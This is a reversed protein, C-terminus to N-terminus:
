LEQKEKVTPEPLDILLAAAGRCLSYTKAWVLTFNHAILEDHVIQVAEDDTTSPDICVTAKNRRCSLFSYAVRARFAKSQEDLTSEATRQALYAPTIEQKLPGLSVKTLLEEVTSVWKQTVNVTESTVIVFCIFSLLLFGM